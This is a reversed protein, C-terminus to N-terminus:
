NYMVNTMTKDVFKGFERDDMEIKMNSLATMFQAVLGNNQSRAAEALQSTNAGINASFESPIANRIGELASLSVGKDLESDLTGLMNQGFAKVDNLVSKEGKDWGQEVGEIAFRGLKAFEKSPSSIGLINKFRTLMNNAFNAMSGLASGQQWPNSVGANIGGILAQGAADAQPTAKTIERITQNVLNAMESTTKPEGIKQGDVYAQVTGNGADQFEWKSGTIESLQDDLAESWKVSTKNLGSETTSVYQAMSNNLEYLRKKQNDVEIQYIALGTDEYMKQNWELAFQTAAIEDQLQAKQADGASQFQSVYDWTATEMEGYKQAHFLAMNNEYTGINYTYEKTLAEQAAYNEQLKTYEKDKDQFYHYLALRRADISELEEDDRIKAKERFTAEKADMEARMDALKSYAETRGNIAETYAAQQSELILEAQKKEILTDISASINNYGKIIGDQLSLEIGLAQALTSTIFGARAEYGEKVRGNVDVIGKLENALSQYYSIEAKGDTISKKQTELLDDWTSKSSQIESTQEKIKNKLNDQANAADNANKVLSVLAVGLGAIAAVVLVIPNTLFTANLATMAASLSGATKIATTFTTIMGAISQAFTLIKSVAFAALMGSIASIVLQRNKIIWEFPEIIIALGPFEKKLKPLIENILSSALKKFSEAVEKIRPIVNKSVTLASDIFKDLSAKMDGNGSAMSTLFNSWASKMSNVSGQITDSAELATTGTIGMNEQVKHIAEIMKDFPIDKVNQATAKFATGMVGTENVLRAMESATGGYGLKLNDLMTFNDKAFGQYANRILDISTGMKNANDAMDTVALDAIKAARATDGGLGQLLSASFGTVTEMYLNASLGATKYANEAYKMVIGASDKFLTEVGGVLQEYEAFSTIAQKGTEVLATGMKKLGEVAKAIAQSALNAVVGKFVTFGEKAKDAASASDQLAGSMDKADGSAGNLEKGLEDVAKETLTYQAKAKNLEIEVNSISKQNSEMAQSSKQVEKELDAVVKEQAKYEKSSTGLTTGIRELETREEKLKAELADHASQQKAVKNRWDELSSELTKVKSAQVQLLSNLDKLRATLAQTSTDNKDFTAATLKMESSVKKLEQNISSLARKYEDAGRLKIAGGFSGGAM